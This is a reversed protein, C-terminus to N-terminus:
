RRGGFKSKAVEGRSKTVGGNVVCAAETIMKQVYWTWSSRKMLGPIRGIRVRSVMEM